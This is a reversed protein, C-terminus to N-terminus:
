RKIFIFDGGEDGAEKIEGFQPVQGNASNNIVATRLNSFLQEASLFKDANQQLRKVLYQIFVSQDPVEKLTGSTMAKRSPMEYLEKIARNAGAMVSRSKFIGGSFCADSILLTHKSNIASIYEKLDANTLWTSRNVRRADSPFWYGQKRNEDWYGHGAYFILLNDMSKVKKSLLELSEFLQDRTPNKLFSVNQKDFTYDTTLLQYLSNADAVPRDLDNITEDKYDQIGIILAYYKGDPKIEAANIPIIDTDVTIPNVIETSQRTITFNYSGRNMKTDTASVLLTNDGVALPITASFNGTPDVKAEIGNIMVEYIGSADTAKGTVNVTKNKQVVKLGRTVLPSTININPPTKDSNTPIIEKQVIVTSKGNNNGIGKGMAAIAKSIEPQIEQLTLTKQYVQLAEEKRNLKELLYGKLSLMNVYDSKTAVLVTTGYEALGKDVQQLALEYDGNPIHEAAALVFYQYYKWAKEGTYTEVENGMSLQYYKRAEEFQRMRVLPEILNIYVYGLKPNIILCKKLDKVALEYDGKKSYADSRTNYALVFEPVLRISETFDEISKDTLGHKLYVNGRGLFANQNKPYLRISENYDNIAPEFQNLAAYCEGRLELFAYDTSDKKQDLAKTYDEIALYYKNSQKYFIGRYYLLNLNTPDKKLLETLYTIGADFKSETYFGNLKAQITAIDPLVKSPDYNASLYKIRFYDVSISQGFGDLNFGFYDGNKKISNTQYVLADDIYFTYLSGVKEVKLFYPEGINKNKIPLNLFPSLFNSGKSVYDTFYGYTKNYVVLNNNDISSGKGGFLALGFYKSNGTNEIAISTEIKFNRTDDIQIEQKVVSYYAELIKRDSNLVLKGNKIETKCMPNIGWSGNTDFENNYIIEEQAFARNVLLCILFLFISVSRMAHKNKSLFLNGVRMVWM